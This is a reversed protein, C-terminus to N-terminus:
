LKLIDNYTVFVMLLLVLSLGLATGYRMWSEGLPRGRLAEAAYFALHGGDLVPIPLLNVFGIATSLFGVLFIIDSIGRKAAEGSVKAIGIPGSLQSTDAGHFLMQNIYLVTRGIIEGVKLVGFYAADWPMLWERAPEPGGITGLSVGMTPLAVKEGSEPHTREIIQPTLRFSKEEGAREILIEIEKGPEIETMVLEVDRSSGMGLGDVSLLLDGPQIGKAMAAGTTSLDIVIPPTRFTTTFTQEAGDRDVLVEIEAGNSRRLTEIIDSFTEIEKDGVRLVRDDAEFGRGAVALEEATFGAIEVQGYGAIVPEQSPRGQYFAICAFVIISLLFNAVPGALVTLARRWLAANHFAQAREEPSLDSDDKSGASAPDMDGVFKVFGGLPLAALQWRTGHRDMRSWIVKGFGISFVEAKIGCWRGVIYHGYEHVAVVVSLVLLFPIAYSLLPGILPISAILDM